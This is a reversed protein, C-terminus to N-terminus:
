KKVRYRITFDDVNKPTSKITKSSFLGIFSPAYGERKMEMLKDWMIKLPSEKKEM